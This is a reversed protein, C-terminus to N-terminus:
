RATAAADPGFLQEAPLTHDAITWAPAALFPRFAGPRFKAAVVRGRGALVRAFKHTVVGYVRADDGEFVLHVSPHPLTEQRHPPLGELDWAVTWYHEVVDALDDAPLYRAHRWRPPEGRPALVGRAADERPRM